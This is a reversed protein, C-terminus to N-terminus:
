NVFNTSFEPLRNQAKLAKFEPESLPGQTIEDANLFVNDKKKEVIFYSVAGGGIPKQKAVIYEENSGIAIVKPQVRGISAGEDIKRVLSRNTSTNIWHVEYEKDKWEVGYDCGCLAIIV